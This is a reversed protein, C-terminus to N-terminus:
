GPGDVFSAGCSKCHQPNSKQRSVRGKCTPCTLVGAAIAAQVKPSSTHQSSAIIAKSEEIAKSFRSWPVAGILGGSVQPEAVAMMKAYFQMADDYRGYDVLGCYLNVAMMCAAEHETAKALWAIDLHELEAIVGPYDPNVRRQIGYENEIIEAVVGNWKKRKGFM